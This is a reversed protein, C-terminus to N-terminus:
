SDHKRMFFKGMNVVFSVIQAGGSVYLVTEFGVLPAFFFVTRRLGFDVGSIFIGIRAAFIAFAAALALPAGVFGASAFAALIACELIWDIARDTIVGRRSTQNYIRALTGDTADLLLSVAFLSMGLALERFGILFAAAIGFIGGLLSIHYPKFRCQNHFFRALPSFLNTYARLLPPYYSFM